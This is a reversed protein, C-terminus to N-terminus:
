IDLLIENGHVDLGWLTEFNYENLDPDEIDLSHSTITALKVPKDGHGKVSLDTCVKLLENVTM